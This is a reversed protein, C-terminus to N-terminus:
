YKIADNLLNVTESLEEIIEDILNVNDENHKLIDAVYSYEIDNYNSNLKVEIHRLKDRIYILDANTIKRNTFIDYNDNNDIEVKDFLYEFFKDKMEEEDYEENWEKGNREKWTEVCHHCYPVGTYRWGKKWFSTPNLSERNGCNSCQLETLM